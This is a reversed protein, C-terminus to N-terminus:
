ANEKPSLAAQIIEAADRVLKACITHHADIEKFKRQGDETMLDCGTLERCLLSGNRQAFEDMIRRAIEYAKMKAPADAGSAASCHFGVVMIAGSLAGCLSGTRGVGGGFAQAVKIAIDRPLGYDKACCAFVSQSCNYGELFMAVAEDANKTM